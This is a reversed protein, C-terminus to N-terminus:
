SIGKAVIVEMLAKFLSTDQCFISVVFNGEFRKVAAKLAQYLALCLDVQAEKLLLKFM